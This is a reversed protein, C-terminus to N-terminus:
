TKQFRAPTMGNWRKFARIFSSTQGYGLLDSIVQLSMNTEKLYQKALVM